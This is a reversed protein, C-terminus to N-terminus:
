AYKVTQLYALSAMRQAGVIQFLAGGAGTLNLNVGPLYEQQLLQFSLFEVTRVTNGVCIAGKAAAAPSM